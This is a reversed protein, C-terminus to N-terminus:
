LMAGDPAPPLTTPPGPPSWTEGRRRAACLEGMQRYTISVAGARIAEVRKADVVDYHWHPCPTGEPACKRKCTQYWEPRLGLAAAFADLEERTDATLHSWRGSVRGVRAPRRMDDVFVAM